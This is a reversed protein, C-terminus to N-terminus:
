NLPKVMVLCPNGEGWLGHLEEVPLFGCARYFRRTNAYGGDPRSPGLTKVSMLRAGEAAAHAVLADVLARGVGQRHYSRAVAMVHVEISEPFHRRHVLVGVPQGTASIAVLASLSAADAVYQQAAEPIGFWEPLGALWSRAVSWILIARV